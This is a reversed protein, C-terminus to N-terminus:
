GEVAPELKRRPDPQRDASAEHEAGARTMGEDSRGLRITEAPYDRGRFRVGYSVVGNRDTHERIQGTPQRPMRRLNSCALVLACTATRRRPRGTEGLPSRDGTEGRHLRTSSEGCGTARSACRRLGGEGSSSRGMEAAHEYVWSRGVRLVAATEAVTLLAPLAHLEATMAVTRGASTPRSPQGALAEPPDPSPMAM